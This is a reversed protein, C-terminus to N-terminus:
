RGEGRRYDRPTRDRGGWVNSSERNLDAFQGCLALVPCAVCAQAAERREEVEESIFPAPDSQCPTRAEATAVLLLRYTDIAAPRMEITTM